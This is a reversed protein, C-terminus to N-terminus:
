GKAAVPAPAPAAVHTAAGEDGDPAHPGEAAPGAPTPGGSAVKVAGLYGAVDKASIGLNSAIQSAGLGQQKMQRVQASVSLKVTDGARSTTAHGTNVQANLQAAEAHSTTIAASGATTQAGSLAQVM